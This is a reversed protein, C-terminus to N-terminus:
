EDDKTQPNTEILELLKGRIFDRRSSALNASCEDLEDVRRRPMILNEDLLAQKVHRGPMTTESDVKLYRPKQGRFWRFAHEDVLLEFIMEIGLIEEKEDFWLTLSNSGDAFRRRMSEDVLSSSLLPKLM